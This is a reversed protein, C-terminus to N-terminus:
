KNDQMIRKHILLALTGYFLVAGTVLVAGMVIYFIANELSISQDGHYNASLQWITVGTVVWVVSVIIAEPWGLKAVPETQTDAPM